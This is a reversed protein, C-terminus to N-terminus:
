SRAGAAASEAPADSVRALLAQQLLLRGLGVGRVVAELVASGPFGVPLLMYRRTTQVEFGAAAVRRGTERLSWVNPLWSRDFHGRWLGLRIGWPTPDLVLIWGGPALVRRCEALARDPDAVHKLTAALVVADFSAPAFPLARADGHVVDLGRARAEAVLAEDADVGHLSSGPFRERLVSLLHGDAAGVDLLRFPRGPPFAHALLSVVRESRRALGSRCVRSASRLRAYQDFGVSRV